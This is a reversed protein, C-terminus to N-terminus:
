RTGGALAEALELLMQLRRAVTSDILRGALYATGEGRAVAADYAQLARRATEVEEPSPSFLRNVAEIQEPNILYKGSFGFARARRADELLGTADNLSYWPGDLAVLRHARAVTVVISRAYDLERGDASRTMGLDAMLEENGLALAIIRTSTAPLEACRLLGRASEIMPILGITGPVIGRELEFERLLVDADRINQPEQVQALLVAALGPQVVADLDDRALGSRVSSVRVHVILGAENLSRIVSAAARGAAARQTPPVAGGLDLTIVDAGLRQVKEALESRGAPVLLLTRLPQVM